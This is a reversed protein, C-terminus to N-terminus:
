KKLKTIEDLKQILEKIIKEDSGFFLFILFLRWKETGIIEQSIDITEPINSTNIEFFDEGNITLKM